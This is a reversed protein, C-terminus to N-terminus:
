CMKRLYDLSLIYFAESIFLSYRIIGNSNANTDTPHNCFTIRIIANGLPRAIRARNANVRLERHYRYWTPRPKIDRRLLSNIVAFTLVLLLCLVLINGKTFLFLLPPVYNEGAPETVSSPFRDNITKRISERRKAVRGVSHTYSAMKRDRGQESSWHTYHLLMTYLNHLSM